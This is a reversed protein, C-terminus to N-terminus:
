CNGKALKYLGMQANNNAITREPIAADFNIIAYAAHNQNVHRSITM